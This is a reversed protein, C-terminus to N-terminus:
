TSVTALSQWLIDLTKGCCDFRVATFRDSAGWVSVKVGPITQGEAGAKLHPHYRTLDTTLRVRTAEGAIQM